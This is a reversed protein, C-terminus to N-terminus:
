LKFFALTRHKVTRLVINDVANISHLFLRQITTFLKKSPIKMFSNLWKNFNKTKDIAKKM